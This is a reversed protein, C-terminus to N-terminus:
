SFYSESVIAPKLKNIKELLFTEEEPIAEKLAKILTNWKGKVTKLAEITEEPTKELFPVGIFVWACSYPEIKIMYGNKDVVAYDYCLTGSENIFFLENNKSYGEEFNIGELFDGYAVISSCDVGM